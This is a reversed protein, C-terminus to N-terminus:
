LKISTLIWNFVVISLSALTSAPKSNSEVSPTSIPKPPPSPLKNPPGLPLIVDVVCTALWVLTSVVLLYETVWSPDLKNRVVRRGTGGGCRTMGRNMETLAKTLGGTTVM